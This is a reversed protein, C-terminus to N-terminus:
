ALFIWYFPWSPYTPVFGGFMVLTACRGLLIARPSVFCQSGRRVGQVGVRSTTLLFRSICRRLAHFTSSDRFQTQSSGLMFIRAASRAHTHRTTCPLLTWPLPELHLLHPTVESDAHRVGPLLARLGIESTGELPARRGVAWAGRPPFLKVTFNSGGFPARM